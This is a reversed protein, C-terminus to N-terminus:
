REGAQAGATRTPQSGVRSRVRQQVTNLCLKTEPHLGCLIGNGVAAAQVACGVDPQALRGFTPHTRLGRTRNRRM